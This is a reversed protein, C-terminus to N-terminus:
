PVGVIDAEAAAGAEQHLCRGAQRLLGQADSASLDSDVLAIVSAACVPCLLGVALRERRCAGQRWRRGELDVLEWARASTALVVELM